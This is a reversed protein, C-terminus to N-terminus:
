HKTTTLIKVNTINLGDAVLDLSKESNRVWTGEFKDCTVIEELDVKRMM